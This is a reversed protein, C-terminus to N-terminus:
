PAREIVRQVYRRLAGEMLKWMLPIRGRAHVDREDFWLRVEYGPGTVTASRRDDAWDVHHVWAAFQSQAERIASQFKSAAIDPPQDHPISIDLQAM